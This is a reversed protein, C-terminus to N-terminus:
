SRKNANARIFHVATIIAENVLNIGCSVPFTVLGYVLNPAAPRLSGRCVRSYVKMDKKYEFKLCGVKRLKTWVEADLLHNERGDIM